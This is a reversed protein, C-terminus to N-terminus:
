EGEPKGVLDSKPCRREGLAVHKGTQIRTVNVPRYYVVMLKNPGVSGGGQDLAEENM